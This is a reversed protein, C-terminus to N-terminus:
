SDIQKMLVMVTTETPGYGNWVERCRQLLKGALDHTLAEGASIACLPLPDNWGSDIIMHWTAPTAIMWTIQERKLMDYLLRGDKSTELDAISLSAGNVLALYQVVSIDFSLPSVALLRDTATIGPEDQMGLLFNVLNRHTIQAGKPKGTSGSTYIIYALTESGIRLGPSVDRHGNAEELLEEII